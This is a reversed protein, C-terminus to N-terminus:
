TTVSVAGGALATRTCHFLADEVFPLGRHLTTIEM